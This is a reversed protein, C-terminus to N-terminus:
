RPSSRLVTCATHWPWLHESLPTLTCNQQSLWPKPIIVYETELEETEGMQKLEKNPFFGGVSETRKNYFKPPTSIFFCRRTCPGVAGLVALTRDGGKPKYSSSICIIVVLLGRGIILCCIVVKDPLSHFFVKVSSRLPKVLHSEWVNGAVLSQAGTATQQRYSPRPHMRELETPSRIRYMSCLSTIESHWAQTSKATFIQKWHCSSACWRAGNFYNKTNLSSCEAAAADRLPARLWWTRQEADLELMSSCLILHELWDRQYLLLM